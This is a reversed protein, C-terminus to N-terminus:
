VHLVFLIALQALQASEMMMTGVQVLVRLFLGEIPEVLQAIQQYKVVLFVNITVYLVSKLM